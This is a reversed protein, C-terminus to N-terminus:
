HRNAVVQLQPTSASVLTVTPQDSPSQLTTKRPLPEYSGGADAYWWCAIGGGIAAGVITATTGAVVTSAVVGGAVVGVATALANAFEDASAPASAWGLALLPVAVIAM